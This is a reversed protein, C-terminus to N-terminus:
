NIKIIGIGFLHLASVNFDGLLFMPSAQNTVAADILIDSANTFSTHEHPIYGGCIIIKNERYMIPIEATSAFNSCIFSVEEDLM